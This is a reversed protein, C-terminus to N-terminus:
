TSAPFLKLFFGYDEVALLGARSPHPDHVIRGNLGVCAHGAPVYERPSKGGVVYYCDKPFWWASFGSDPKMPNACFYALGHRERLWGNLLMLWNKGAQEGEWLDPVDELRCELISAVCAALCNGEPQGFKTQDVPRM